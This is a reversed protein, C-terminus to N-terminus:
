SSTWEELDQIPRKNKGSALSMEPYLKILAKAFLKDKTESFCCISTGYKDGRATRGSRHTYEDMSDPADYHVVYQVDKFDLGRCAVNTVVLIRITGESNFDNLNKTRVAQDLDGEMTAVKHNSHELENFLCRVGQKSNLFVLIKQSKATPFDKLQGELLKHLWIKKEETNYFCEFHHHLRPRQAVEDEKGGIQIRVYQQTEGYDLLTNAYEDVNPSWTATFLALVRNKPILESFSYVDRSFSHDLMRDAEDLIYNSVNGLNVVKRNIFDRLRGPTACCIRTKFTLTTMQTGENGQGGYAVGAKLGMAGGYELAHEYIQQILERTPSLILVDPAAGLTKFRDEHSPYKNARAYEDKKSIHYLAPILFGLTKGSGTEAVGLCHHSNMMTSWCHRQVPSPGTWKNEKINHDIIKKLPMFPSVKNGEVDVVMSQPNFHEFLESFTMIPRGVFEEGHKVHVKMDSHDRAKQISDPSAFMKDFKTSPSFTTWKGKKLQNWWRKDEIVETIENRNEIQIVDDVVDNIIVDKDKLVPEYDVKQQHTPMGELRVVQCELKRVLTDLNELSRFKNELYTTKQQLEEREKELRKNNLEFNTIKRQLETIETELRKKVELSKSLLGRYEACKKNECFTVM